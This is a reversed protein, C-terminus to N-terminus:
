PGNTRGGGQGGNRGRHGPPDGPGDDPLPRGMEERCIRRAIEELERINGYKEPRNGKLFFEMLRDSPKDHIVVEQGEDNLVTRRRGYKARLLGLEELNDIHTQDAEAWAAAFEKSRSAHYYATGRDIGARTAAKSVNGTKRILELFTPVWAPHDSM